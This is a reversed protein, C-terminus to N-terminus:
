ADFYFLFVSIEQLSNIYLREFIKWYGIAILYLCKPFCKFCNFLFFRIILGLTYLAQLISHKKQFIPM